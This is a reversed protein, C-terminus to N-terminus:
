EAPRGLLQEALRDVRHGRFFGGCQHARVIALHDLGSPDGGVLLLDGIEAAGIRQQGGAERDGVLM